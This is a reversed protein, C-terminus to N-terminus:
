PSLGVNGCSRHPREECRRLNGSTSTLAGVSGYSFLVPAEYARRASAAARAGADTEPLTTM